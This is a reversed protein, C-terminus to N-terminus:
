RQSIRLQRWDRWPQRPVLYHYPRHVRVDEVGFGVHFISRVAKAGEILKSLLKDNISPTM